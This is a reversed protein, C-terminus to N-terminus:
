RWTPDGIAVRLPASLTQDATVPVLALRLALQGDTRALWTRAPEPVGLAFSGPQSAPYPTVTGLVEEIPAGGAGAWVVTAALSFSQALPNDIATIPLTLTTPAAAFGAIAVDQRPASATLVAAHPRPGPSSPPQGAHDAPERLDPPRAEGACALLTLM